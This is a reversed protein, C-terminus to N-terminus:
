WFPETSPQTVINVTLLVSM